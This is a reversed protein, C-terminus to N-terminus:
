EIMYTCIMTVEKQEPKSKLQDIELTCIESNCNARCFDQVLFAEASSNPSQKLQSAKKFLFFHKRNM